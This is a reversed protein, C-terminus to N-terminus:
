LAKTTLGKGRKEIAAKRVLNHTKVDIKCSNVYIYYLSVM